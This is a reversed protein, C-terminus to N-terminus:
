VKGVVYVWECYKAGYTRVYRFGVVRRYAYSVNFFFFILLCLFSFLMSSSKESNAVVTRVISFTTSAHSTLINARWSAGYAIFLITTPIQGYAVITSCARKEYNTGLDFVRVVSCVCHNLRHGAQLLITRVCYM